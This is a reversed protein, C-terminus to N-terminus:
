DWRSFYTSAESSTLGIYQKLKDPIYSLHKEKVVFDKLEQVRNKWAEYTGGWRERERKVEPDLLNEYYEIRAIVNEDSLTTEMAYSLRSLFKERFTPNKILNKTITMHQWTQDSSFIHRFTTHYNFTWDLDYFAYQWKYGTDTSRFYRLNQQVDSNTCYGEMIMWDILSDIDIISSLYEYYEDTKQNNTRCYKNIQYIEHDMDVPAQVIEVNEAAGGMNQTYFTETFAEKMCYIGFYEGNVYLISFKDRQALVSDSFERCLSTFLEDRFISLPYDQGARICLSDYVQPGDEGYVPYTLYSAGYRGRFNVKFSKKPNKLGTHGYLKVGCDISFGEGDEFLKLNCQIEKDQYYQTYIGTGGFMEDPDATISIVPLTHNENIIYAATVVDSPLKGDELSVVRIVTTASLIIPMTYQRSSATPVSGDTTYYLPGEGNLVVTVNQVDNYVGDPTEVTPTESIFAVGTGNDTGPTPTTFYFTGNEGDARGVSHQYPVDYVRIYDSCSSDAIRSLYVWSEERSLTFPAHTYKSDTLDTSGSCIILYCQGPQLEVAPLQFKDPDGPDDSLAYDALNVTIESTNKLEIWDYFEGDAQQLYMCNSPMVESIILAGSPSQTARFAQYGDETNEYGPSPYASETYTGDSQLAWTRDEAMRPVEVQDIVNGVAGSLLMTFGDRNLSFDAEGEPAGSGSCPIVTREGAQLTMTPIPWKMRDAPDDSLYAGELTVASGTPNYLEVWDCLRGAQNTITSRNATMVESIVIEPTEYGVASLWSAYGAETNEYGPTALTTEAYTDDDQLAWACDKGIEPVEVMSITNGMTGTLIVTCGSRSLAFDAEGEAALDGACRIVTREGAELTLSEIMWKTRDAPDDSLFSGDLTVTSGGRNWLEIWDSRHGDGDIIAYGNGSMIESIVVGTVGGGESKLWAEYGAETNEYGPTAQVGTSWTGDDLRILPVNDNTRPVEYQDVLVNASNYLCLIDGGRKSIGFTAYKESESEKDCWCVIYGHAQIVTGNPFTYGISEGDDSLMYGSIDIPSDSTNRVEVFDLYAGNPAPYTLNSALIESLIIPNTNESDTGDERSFYLSFLVAGAFLVICALLALISKTRKM